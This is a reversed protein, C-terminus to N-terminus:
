LRRRFLAFAAASVLSLLLGNPEPVFQIFGGVGTGGALAELFSMKWVDYDLRTVINDGNGDAALSVGTQGLSNRWVTYDAADVIGNRNYDGSVLGTISLTLEYLQVTDDVGSVRAFYNGGAPVFVGSLSEVDGAPNSAAAALPSVGDDDILTLALDNRANANFPTPSQGPSAQNFLGGRPTLTANILSPQSVTFRYFDVDEFNAISVFDTATGSIAQGPVNASAGISASTGGSITGLNTALAATQNGQAGNSKENADGFFFQVGRVEDLQPGDFSVDIQPEMLLASTSTVHLIGFGHAIEHMLTNRFNRFNNTPDSFFDTDGTDLVMDSGSTPLWTYALTGDVGDVARGGVRVDGRVGLLGPQSPHLVGDDHPEYVYNVGSLEEYRGFADDFLSFWPQQVLDSQAPNGGFNTNMFAILNSPTTGVGTSGTVNTGDPVISWTITAPAGNGSRPGSATLLWPDPENPNIIFADASPCYILAAIFTAFM